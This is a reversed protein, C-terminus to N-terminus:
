DNIDKLFKLLKMETKVQRYIYWSLVLLLVAGSILIYLYFWGPLTMKFSPLLLIFGSSYLLLMLPTLWFQINRRFKYFGAMKSAYNQLSLTIDIGTLRIFSIYEAIIRTLLAMIMMIFGIFPQTVRYGAVSIFFLIVILLTLGLVGFTWLHKSRIIRAHSIAKKILEESGAAPKAENQENWIDQIDKFTKM